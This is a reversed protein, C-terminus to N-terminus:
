PLLKFKIPITLRQRVITGDTMIAPNWKPMNYILRVAEKNLTKYLCERVIMLHSISGNKEIIFSIYVTGEYNNKLADLPYRLEHSLYKRLSDQSGKFNANNKVQGFGYVTSSDETKEIPTIIEENSQSDLLQSFSTISLLFFLSISIIKTM